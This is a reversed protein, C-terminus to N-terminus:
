DSPSGNPFLSAILEREWPQLTRYDNRKAEEYDHALEAMDELISNSEHNIKELLRATLKHEKREKVLAQEFTAARNSAWYREKAVQRFEELLNKKEEKLLLIEEQLKMVNKRSIWM